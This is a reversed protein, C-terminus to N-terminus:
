SYDVTGDKRTSRELMLMGKDLAKIYVEGYIIDYIINNMLSKKLFYLAMATASSAYINDDM